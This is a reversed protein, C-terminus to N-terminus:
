CAPSLQLGLAAARRQLSQLEREKRRAEYQEAGRDVWQQGKTMLRYVICALERAMAKVAKLKEMRHTKSRYRAGLYSDSKHLAQAAMRFANNLRGRAPDVYHRIVKGSSIDRRPTLRLWSCFNGETPFASLDTGLESYITLATMANIGEIRTLDVGMTRELEARLDFGKPQNKSRNGQKKKRRKRAKPDEAIGEPVVAQERGEMAELRRQLEGDCEAMLAQQFDYTALVQRLEFLVDEQWRGELHCAIEEKSATVGPERFEALKRPDREGAVIARIIHMGTVGAIDSLVSSLRVNMKTLAKDIQQLCRGADQVPRERMRWVNRLQRIQEPPRFSNRLLGYTHLKRLWQCEQVDSKRGPLNKTDRANVVFVELGARELEEQAGMGYVGTSQMVVTRISCEKLWQVMRRLDGTWSGFERVPEPDRGPPVSVFHSEKGIDIGAADPHVIELGPDEKALQRGWEKREQRNMRHLRQFTSIKRKAMDEGAESQGRGPRNAIVECVRRRPEVSRSAYAGVVMCYM